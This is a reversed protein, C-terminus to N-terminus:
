KGPDQFFLLHAKQAHYKDRKPIFYGFSFLEPPRFSVQTIFHEPIKIGALYNSSTDKCLYHYFHKFFCLNIESNRSFLIFTRHHPLFSAVVYLSFHIM